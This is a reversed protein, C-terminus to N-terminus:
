EAVMVSVTGDAVAAGAIVKSLGVEPAVPVETVIVPVLKPEVCPDLVTSKPVVAAVTVEHDAVEIVTVTGLLRAAPATLTVTFTPPTALLATVNVTTAPQEVLEM